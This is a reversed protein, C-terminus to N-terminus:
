EADHEQAAYMSLPMRADLAAATPHFPRLPEPGGEGPMELEEYQGADQFWPQLRLWTVIRIEKFDKRALLLGDEVIRVYDQTTPRSDIRVGPHNAFAVSLTGGNTLAVMEGKVDWARTYLSRRLRCDYQPPPLMDGHESQIPLLRTERQWPDLRVVYNYKPQDDRLTPCGRMDGFDRDLKGALVEPTDHSVLWIFFVGSRGSRVDM